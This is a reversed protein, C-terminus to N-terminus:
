NCSQCGYLWMESKIYQSYIDFVGHFKELSDYFEPATKKIQPLYKRPIYPFDHHEVHHNGKMYLFDLFHGYFSTTPQCHENLMTSKHSAIGFILCPHFFLGRYFLESLLLYFIGKYGAIFFVFACIILNIITQYFFTYIMKVYNDNSQISSLFPIKIKLRESITLLIGLFFCIPTKVFVLLLVHYAPVFSTFIIRLYLNSPMIRTLKKEKTQYTYFYRDYFLEYDSHMQKFNLVDEVLEGGFVAHHSLHGVTYLIYTEPTLLPICTLRLMWKKLQGVIMPHVLDHCIEHANNFIAFNCYAGVTAAMLIIVPISFFQSQYVLIMQLLPIFLILWLTNPNNRPLFKLEPHAALIEKQRHSHWRANTVDM